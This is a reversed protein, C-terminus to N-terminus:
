LTGAWSESRASVAHTTERAANRDDCAGRAAEASRDRLAEGGFTSLEDKHRAGHAAEFLDIVFYAAEPAGCGEHREIQRAKIGDVAESLREELAEALDVDEDGIGGHEASQGGDAVDRGAVPGLDDIEIQRGVPPQNAAQIRQQSGAVGTARDEHGVR